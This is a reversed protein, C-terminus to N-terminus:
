VHWVPWRAHLQMGGGPRIVAYGLGSQRLNDEGKRKYGTVKALEEADEGPRAVGACSLLVFEPEAGGPLAKIWDVELNFQQEDARGTLVAAATHSPPPM